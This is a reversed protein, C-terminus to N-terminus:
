GVISSNCVKKLAEAEENGTWLDHMASRINDVRAWQASRKM